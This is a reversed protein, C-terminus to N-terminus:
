TYTKLCETIAHLIAERSLGDKVHGGEGPPEPHKLLPLLVQKCKEPNPHEKWKINCKNLDEHIWFFAEHPGAHDKHCIRYLGRGSVDDQFRVDPLKELQDRIWRQDEFRPLDRVLEWKAIAM